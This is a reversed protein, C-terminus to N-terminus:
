TDADNFIDDLNDIIGSINKNTKLLEDVSNIGTMNNLVKGFNMEKYINGDTSYEVKDVKGLDYTFKFFVNDM